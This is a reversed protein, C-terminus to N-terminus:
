VHKYRRMAKASSRHAEDARGQAEVAEKVRRHAKRDRARRQAKKDRARRQAKRARGHWTLVHWRFNVM